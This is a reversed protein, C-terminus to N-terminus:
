CMYIRYTLSSSYICIYCKILPTLEILETSPSTYRSLSLSLFSGGSKYMRSPLTMCFEHIIQPVVISVLSVIRLGSTRFLYFKKVEFGPSGTTSSYLPFPRLGLTRVHSVFVSLTLVDSTCVGERVSCVSLCLRLFTPCMVPPRFM